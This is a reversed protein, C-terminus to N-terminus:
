HVGRPPAWEPSLNPNLALALDLEKRAESGRAEREQPSDLRKALTLMLHARAAHAQAQHPNAALVQDLRRLGERLVPIPDGGTRALWEAWEQSLLGTALLSDEQWEPNVEIAQQFFRAAQEFDTGRAQERRALWRARVAQVEGQYRLAYSMRPNLELAQDLAESARDLSPGPDKGHELAWVAQTHHVKAMNARFQAQKPLFEIAHAYNELAAKVSPGPDEGRRRLYLARKAYVEGLNNYAFGQQPALARAQEFAAQAEDLLPFANGGKEWAREAQLLLAGGLANHLQVLRANVALGQRYLAIARELEQDPATDGGRNYMRRARWEHVQAGYYYPIPADADISRARELAESARELDGDADEARAHTARKFYAMGLNVWGDQRKADLTTAALFAQIARDRHGLSEDGNQEEYDAWVKFIQGLKVQFSYDRGTPAVREFAEVAQRLQERPDEGQEQRYRAWLRLMHGLATQARIDGPALSLATRAAALGEKLLPMVEGGNQMRFEAMRFLFLTRQVQSKSDEPDATLAHSLAGMGQEYHPQIEGPGYLELILSGLHLSALSRHV